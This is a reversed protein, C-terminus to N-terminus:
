SQLAQARQNIENLIQRATRRDGFPGVYRYHKKDGLENALEWAAQRDERTVLEIRLSTRSGAFRAM